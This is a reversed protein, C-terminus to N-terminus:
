DSEPDEKLYVIRDEPDPVLSHIMSATHVSADGLDILRDILISLIGTGMGNMVALFIGSPSAPLLLGLSGACVFLIIGVWYGTCFPCAFMREFYEIRFLIRRVIEGRESHILFFTTGAGCIMLNLNLHEM